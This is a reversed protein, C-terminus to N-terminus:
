MAEHGGQEFRARLESSAQKRCRRDGRRFGVGLTTGIGLAVVPAGAVLDLSAELVRGM